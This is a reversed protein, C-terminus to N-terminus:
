IVKTSGGGVRCVYWMSRHRDPLLTHLFGQLKTLICWRIQNFVFLNVGLFLISHGPKFICFQWVSVRVMWFNIQQIVCGIKCLYSSSDGGQRSKMLRILKEDEFRVENSRLVSGWM